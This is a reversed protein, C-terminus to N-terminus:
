RRRNEKERRAAEREHHINEGRLKVAARNFWYADWDEVEEPPRGYEKALTLVM